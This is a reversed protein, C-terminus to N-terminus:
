VLGWLEMYIIYFEESSSLCENGYTESYRSYGKM